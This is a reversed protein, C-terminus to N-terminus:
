RVEWRDQVTPRPGRRLALRPGDEAQGGSLASREQARQDPGVQTALRRRFKCRWSEKRFRPSVEASFRLFGFVRDWFGWRLWCLSLYM